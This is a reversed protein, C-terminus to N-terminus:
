PSCSKKLASILKSRMRKEKLAVKVKAWTTSCDKYSVGLAEHIAADLCRKNEPTPSVGAEDFLDKIHRFYCSM